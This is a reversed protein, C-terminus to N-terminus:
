IIGIVIHKGCAISFFSFIGSVRHKDCDILIRSYTSLQTSVVFFPTSPASSETSMLRLPVYGYTSYIIDIVTHKGCAISFFSFIGIVIHETTIDMGAAEMGSHCVLVM